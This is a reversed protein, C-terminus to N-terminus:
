RGVFYEQAVNKDDFPTVSFKTEEITAEYIKGPEFKTYTLALRAGLEMDASNAGLSILSYAGIPNPSFKIQTFKPNPINRLRLNDDENRGIILKAGGPLRLHRGFKLIEGDLVSTFKEFKMMDKIKDAYSQITLLCGGAPTEYDEFGFERALEMQRTRGRGSIDLLKERDVWGLIEPTTPSLLKACLPRLILNNEDGSLGRVQAMAAARQSMPRQGLVEGSIVFKAGFKDLLGLATKFMYGHCDICPNFQKGYGYKPSFLVNQLYENRIDVSVFEGGAQRARSAMIENKDDKSGFGININLAIIEINQLTLLKIALMSDLGGSFLALARM